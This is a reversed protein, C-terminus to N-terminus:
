AARYDLRTIAAALEDAFVSTYRETTTSSAHGAFRQVLRLNGTERYLRTLCTHRLAHPKIRGIDAAESVLNVWKYVMSHHAHGKRGPFLWGGGAPIRLNPHLPLTRNRRGKGKINVWQDNFDEHRLSVIESRRLGLYLGLLVPLGEAMKMAQHELRTAEVETLGKYTDLNSETPVLIADKPGDYNIHRWYQVLASRTNKVTSAPLQDTLWRVQTATLNDLSWGQGSVIRHVRRITRVYERITADGLRKGALWAEFLTTDM